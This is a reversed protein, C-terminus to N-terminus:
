AVDIKVLLKKKLEMLKWELYGAATSHDWQLFACYQYQSWQYLSQNIKWAWIWSWEHRYCNKMGIGGCAPRQFKDTTKSHWMNQLTHLCKYCVLLFPLLLQSLLHKRKVIFNAKLSMAFASITTKKVWHFLFFYKFDTEYPGFQLHLLVTRTMIEKCMKFAVFYDRDLCLASTSFLHCHTFICHSSSQYLSCSWVNTHM